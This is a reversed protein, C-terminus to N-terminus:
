ERSCHGPASGATERMLDGTDRSKWAHMFRWRVGRTAEPRQVLFDLSSKIDAQSYRLGGCHVHGCAHRVCVRSRVFGSALVLRCARRGGGQPTRERVEPRCTFPLARDARARSIERGAVEDGRRRRDSWAPVRQPISYCCIRTLSQERTADWVHQLLSPSRTDTSVSSWSLASM